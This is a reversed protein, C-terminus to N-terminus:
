VVPVCFFCNFDIAFVIFVGDNHISQCCFFIFNKELPFFRLYKTYTKTTHAMPLPSMGHTYVNYLKFDIFIHFINSGASFGVLWNCKRRFIVTFSRLSKILKMSRVFPYSFSRSFRNMYSVCICIIFMYIIYNNLLEVIIHLYATINYTSHRM